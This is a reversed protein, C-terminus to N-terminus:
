SQASLLAPTALGCLASARASQLGQQLRTALQRVLPIPPFQSTCWPAANPAHRWCPMALLLALMSCCPLARHASDLGGHIGARKCGGCSAGLRQEHEAHEQFCSRAGAANYVPERPAKTRSLRNLASALHWFKFLIRGGWAYCSARAGAGCSCWWLRWLVLVMATRNHQAWLVSEPRSQRWSPYLPM